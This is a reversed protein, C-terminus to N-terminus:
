LLPTITIDGTSNTITLSHTGTGPSATNSVSGTSTSESLTSYADAALRITIDGTSNEISTPAKLGAIDVVIDGTSNTIDSVTESSLISITGTSNTIPGVDKVQSISISGTSNVVSTVKNIGTISVAGTSNNVGAEVTEPLYIVIDVKYNLWKDESSVTIDYRSNTKSFDVIVKTIESETPVSVTYNVTIQDDTSPNITVSGVNNTAFLSTIDSAPTSHTYKKSYDLTTCSSFLVVSAVLGLLFKMSSLRYM